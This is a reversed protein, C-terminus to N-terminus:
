TLFSLHLMYEQFQRQNDLYRESYFTLSAEQQDRFRIINPGRVPFRAVTITVDDNVYRKNVLSKTVTVNANCDHDHLDKYEDCIGNLCVYCKNPVGKRAKTKTKELGHVKWATM